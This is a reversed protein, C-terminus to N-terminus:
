LYPRMTPNKRLLAKIDALIGSITRLRIDDVADQDHDDAHRLYRIAPYNYHKVTTITRGDKDTCHLLNMHRRLQDVLSIVRDYSTLMTCIDHSHACCAQDAAKLALELHVMSAYVAILPSGTKSMQAFANRNHAYM